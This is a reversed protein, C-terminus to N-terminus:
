LSLLHSYTGPFGHISDVDITRNCKDLPKTTIDEADDGFYISDNKNYSFRM